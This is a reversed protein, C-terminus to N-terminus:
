SGRVALAFSAGAVGLLMVRPWGTALLRGLPGEGGRLRERVASVAVALVLAGTCLMVALVSLAVLPVTWAAVRRVLAEDIGGALGAALNVAFLVLSLAVFGWAAGRLDDRSPALHSGVCVVVYLFGWFRPDTLREASALAWVAESAVRPTEALARVEAVRAIAADPVLLRAALYLVVSGGLLPAVGIFFRGIEAWPQGRPWRHHVFGLRGTERDPAFLKVEEVSHGFPLCMAVHSLEHIPVGLWGTVLTARWGFSATWVSGGLRELQHLALACAALPGLVWALQRFTALAAAATSDLVTEM